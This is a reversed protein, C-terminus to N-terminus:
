TRPVPRTGKFSRRFREVFEVPRKDDYRGLMRRDTHGTVHGIENARLDETGVRARARKFALKGTNANTDFVFEGCRPQTALIRLARGPRWRCSAPSASFLFNSRM